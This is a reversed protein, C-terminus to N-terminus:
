KTKLKDGVCLGTMISKLEGNNTPFMHKKSCIIEKGSKTKIKYTKQKTIPFVNTIKKFGENTLIEDDIKVSNIEVKGKGKIEVITNLALCRNSQIASWCPINFDAAMAEFSKVIVLEAEHRDNTKKHSDLCDLYDLVVIDFKIGYKKQYRVIWSRIDKMTTDEQSFRKIILKGKNGLSEIKANVKEIVLDNNDDIASLAIETWITYHKRQIQEVTDEFIIQLVNYDLERATNAIKTLLTSKGVGSPTLILGIEGKGLGGGTLTDLVEVGTPITQRFEKRLAKEVNESVDIGNDEDDGIHGIKQIKDEIAGITYKSKIEGTKTKDLIFEGLKRYEQQKIFATTEKQVIDGDNLLHKNLVRENWLEIRKIVSFLSEEEIQNNPSKYKYIAQYISQNQLNPVKEFEKVFELIILFLRKLNPDDFYEISLNPITKEAYEPEVLIQWMLRQQFEPGLYASFTNDVIESM